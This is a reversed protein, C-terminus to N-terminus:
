LSLIMLKNFWSVFMFYLCLHYTSCHSIKSSKSKISTMNEQVNFMKAIFVLLIFTSKIKFKSVNGFKFILLFSVERKEILAKEQSSEEQM